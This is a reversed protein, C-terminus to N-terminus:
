EMAAQLPVTRVSDPRDAQIRQCPRLGGASGHVIGCFDFVQKLTGFGNGHDAKRGIWAPGAIRHSAVHLGLAVSDNRYIGVVLCDQSFEAIGTQQINRRGGWDIQDIDETTRIGDRQHDLLGSCIPTPAMQICSPM